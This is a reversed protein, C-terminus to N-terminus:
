IAPITVRHGTIDAWDLDTEFGLVVAGQQIQAGFTGGVLGGNINFSDRDFRGPLLNFPDQQGWGWGGNVGVYFGTWNYVAAVPAPPAKVALDASHATLPSLLWAACALFKLIRKM